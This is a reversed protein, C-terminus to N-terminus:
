WRIVNLSRVRFPTLTGHVGRPKIRGPVRARKGAESSLSLDFDNLPILLERRVESKLRVFKGRSGRRADRERSKWGCPQVRSSRFFFFTVVYWQFAVFPAFSPWVASGTSSCRRSLSHSHSPLGAFSAVFRSCIAASTYKDSRRRLCKARYSEVSEAPTVARCLEATRALLSPLAFTVTRLNHKQAASVAAGNFDTFASQKSRETEARNGIKDRTGRGKKRIRAYRRNGKRACTEENRQWDDRLDNWWRNRPLDRYIARSREGKGRETRLSVLIRSSTRATCVQRRSLAAVTFRSFYSALRGVGIAELRRGLSM